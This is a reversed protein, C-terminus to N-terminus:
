PSTANTATAQIAAEVCARIANESSQSNTPTAFLLDSGRQPATGYLQGLDSHDLFSTSSADVTFFRLTINRSILFSRLFMLSPIVHNLWDEYQTGDTQNVIGDYRFVSGGLRRWHFRELMSRIYNRNNNDVDTLDYSVIIPM